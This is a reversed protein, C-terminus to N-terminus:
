ESPPAEGPLPIEVGAPQLGEPEEVVPVTLTLENRPPEECSFLTAAWGLLLVWSSVGLLYAAALKLVGYWIPQSDSGVLFWAPLAVGVMVALLVGLWWYRNWLLRLISRVPLRWGWQASAMGYPIMKAPLVVCRLLWEACQLGVYINVFSFLSSKSGTPAQAYLYGAWQPIRVDCWDLAVWFACSIAIWVLLTLAGWVLKVRKGDDDALARMTGAQLELASIVLLLIILLSLAVQWLQRDPIHAWALGLLILGLTVGFQAVVWRHALRLRHLL